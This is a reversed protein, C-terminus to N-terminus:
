MIKQKKNQPYKPSVSFTRPDQQNQTGRWDHKRGHNPQQKVQDRNMQFYLLLLSRFHGCEANSKNDEDVLFLLIYRCPTDM